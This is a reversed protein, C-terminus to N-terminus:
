EDLNEAVLSLLSEIPKDWHNNRAGKEFNLRCSACSLVVGEAGTADIQAQKIKWAGQRLDAASNLLFVGAGGGCCWNVTKSSEAERFEVGLAGLM